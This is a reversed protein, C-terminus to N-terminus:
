LSESYPAELPVVPSLDVTAPDEEYFGAILPMVPAFRSAEEMLLITAYEAEAEEFSAIQPIQPILLTFELTVKPTTVKITTGDNSAFLFTGSFILVLTLTLYKLTKM